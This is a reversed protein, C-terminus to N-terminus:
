IKGFLAAVFLTINSGLSQRRVGSRKLQMLRSVLPQARSRAFEDLVRRNEPTINAGLVQLAAINCDNWRKLQGQAVGRLRRLRAGWDSNMGILNHLHQRYRVSPRPDYFVQGGCATVALYAWWDHTVVEVKEAAARLLTRAADNFVMTNGGGINQMLANAFSPPKVFLPSLGIERNDVDVLRTRSCYLAPVDAPVTQLWAVARALKDPEWIDDQDSYAYCDAQIGAHCTLALFNAAFGKRPGRLISLRGQAWQVQFHALIALTDDTSGDDSAWVAWNTHTQDAFSDLQEALHRQGDFTGLLIAVQHM